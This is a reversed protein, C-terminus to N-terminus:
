GVFADGTDNEQKIDDDQSLNIKERIEAVSAKFMHTVGKSQM